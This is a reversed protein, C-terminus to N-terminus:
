FLLRIIRSKTVISYAHICIRHDSSDYFIMGFLVQRYFVEPEPLMALLQSTSEWGDRDRIELRKGSADEAVLIEKKEGGEEKVLKGIREYALLMGVFNDSLINKIHGKAVKVAATFDRQARNMVTERILDTVPEFEAAEWRIRQNVEGPYLSLVPVKVMDFCSDEQKVYKLAKLPRYNSTTFIEGSDVDAWYGRDIYERGAEEYMVQFSLQVLRADEKKLGLANLQELKWIGGLEEYLISDDEEMSDAELKSQLYVSAKKQIGRLRILIEVATHYHKPDSDKQYAQIELILRNLQLLPGPLYYDGLQKALERYNKLSVGGMAGLGAAMLEDMMRKLMDLGDLQKIIKKRRAASTSKSIKGRSKGPTDSGAAADTGGAKGAAKRVERAERKARKELIDPPIEGQIFTKGKMMEFLLALSHKCPFQRSPCSCRFVPQGEEKFDASVVYNSKGSGRCEGMYFTDDPSYMLSVFGGEESIKRANKVANANPALAIIQQETVTRM